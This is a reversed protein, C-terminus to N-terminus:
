FRVKEFDGTEDGDGDGEREDGEEEEEEWEQYLPIIM